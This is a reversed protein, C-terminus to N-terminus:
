RQRRLRDDDEDAMRAMGGHIFGCHASRRGTSATRTCKSRGERPAAQLAQLSARPRVTASISAACRSSIETQSIPSTCALRTTRHQEACRNDLSGHNTRIGVGHNGGGGSCVSESHRGSSCRRQEVVPANFNHRGPQLLIEGSHRFATRSSCGGARLQSHLQLRLRLLERKYDIIGPHNGSSRGDPNMIM